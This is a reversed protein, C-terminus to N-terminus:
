SYRRVPIGLKWNVSTGLYGSNSDKISILVAPLIFKYDGHSQEFLPLIHRSLAEGHIENITDGLLSDERANQSTNAAPFPKSILINEHSFASSIIT